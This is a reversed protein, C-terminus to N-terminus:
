HRVQEANVKLADDHHHRADNYALLNQPGEGVEMRRGRSSSSYHTRHKCKSRKSVPRNSTNARGRSAPVEKVVGEAYTAELIKIDVMSVAASLAKLHVQDQYVNLTSPPPDNPILLM